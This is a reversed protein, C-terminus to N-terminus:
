RGQNIVKEDKFKRGSIANKVAGFLHFVSHTFCDLGTKRHAHREEGLIDNGSVTSVV